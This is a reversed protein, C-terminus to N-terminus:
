ENSVKKSLAERYQKQTIPQYVLKMLRVLSIGMKLADKKSVEFGFCEKHIAIFSEIQKNTLEM